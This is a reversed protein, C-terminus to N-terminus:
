RSRSGTSKATTRREDVNIRVGLRWAPDTELAQEYV